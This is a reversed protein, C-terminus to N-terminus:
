KYVDVQNQPAEWNASTSFLRVTLAPSGLSKPGIGPDPLDGLLHCPPGSRYERSLEMSLPVQHAVAPLWRSSDQGHCLDHPLFGSLVLAHDPKLPEWQFERLM